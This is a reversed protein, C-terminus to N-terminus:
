ARVHYGTAAVTDKRPQGSRPRAKDRAAAHPFHRGYLRGALQWLPLEAALHRDAPGRAATTRLWAVVGRAAEGFVYRPVGAITPV